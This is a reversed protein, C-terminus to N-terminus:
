MYKWQQTLRNCISKERVHRLHKTFYMDIVFMEIKIGLVASDIWNSDLFKYSPDQMGIMISSWCSNSNKHNTIFIFFSLIYPLTEQLETCLFNIYSVLDQPACLPLNRVTVCKLNAPQYWRKPHGYPRWVTSRIHATTYQLLNPWFWFVAIEDRRLLLCKVSRSICPTDLVSPCM